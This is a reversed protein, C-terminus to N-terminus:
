IHHPFSRVNDLPAAMTGDHRAQGLASCGPARSAGPLRRRGRPFKVIASKCQRHTAEPEVPRRIPMSGLGVTRATSHRGFGTAGQATKLTPGPETGLTSLQLAELPHATHENGRPKPLGTGAHRKPGQIGCGGGGVEAPCSNGRGSLGAEERGSRELNEGRRPGGSQEPRERHPRRRRPRRRRSMAPVPGALWWLLAGMAMVRPVNV